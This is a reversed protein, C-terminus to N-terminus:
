FVWSGAKSVVLSRLVRSGELQTREMGSGGDCKARVKKKSVRKGVLVCREGMM